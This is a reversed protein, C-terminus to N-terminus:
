AERPRQDLPSRDPPARDLLRARQLTRHFGPTAPLDPPLRPAAVHRAGPLAGHGRPEDEAASGEVEEGRLAEPDGEGEARAEADEAHEQDVRALPPPARPPRPVHAPHDRTGLEGHPA